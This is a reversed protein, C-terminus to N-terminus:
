QDSLTLTGSGDVKKQAILTLLPGESTTSNTSSLIQNSGQLALDNAIVALFGAGSEASLEYRFDSLIIQDAVLTIFAAKWKISGCLVIVKAELALTDKESDKPFDLAKLGAPLGRVAPSNPKCGLILVDSKKSATELQELGAVETIEFRLATKLQKHALLQHDESESVLVGGLKLSSGLGEAAKKASEIDQASEQQSQPVSTQTSAQFGRDSCATLALATLLTLIHTTKTM